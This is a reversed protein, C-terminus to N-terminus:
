QGGSFISSSKNLIATQSMGGLPMNSDSLNKIRTIGTFGEENLIHEIIINYAFPYGEENGPYKYELTLRAENNGTDRGTIEFAKDWLFGHLATLNKENRKLNYQKGEFIYEGNKIRNAFPSLKAGSYKIGGYNRLSAENEDGLILSYLTNKLLILKNINAGFSPIVEIYENTKQNQLIVSKLSGFAGDSINYM